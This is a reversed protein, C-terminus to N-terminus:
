GAPSIPRSHLSVAADTGHGFVLDGIEDPSCVPNDCGIQDDLKSVSTVVFKRLPLDAATPLPELQSTWADNEALAVPIKM